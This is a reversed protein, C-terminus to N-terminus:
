EFQLLNFFHRLGEKESRDLKHWRIGEIAGELAYLTNICSDPYITKLRIFADCSGTEILSEATKIGAQNLRKELEEGINPLESLKGM